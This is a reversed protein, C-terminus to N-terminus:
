LATIINSYIKYISRQVGICRSALPRAPFPVLPLGVESQNEAKILPQPIAKDKKNAIKNGIFM